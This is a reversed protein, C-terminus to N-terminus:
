IPFKAAALRRLAKQARKAEQALRASFWGVAFWYRSDMQAAQRWYAHATMHDCLSGMEAQAKALVLLYRDWKKSLHNRHLLCASADLAYRLRKIRKRLDHRQLDNLSNFRSAERVLTEQWRGLRREFRHVTDADGASASAMLPVPDLGLSYRLLHLLALNVSPRRMLNTPDPPEDAAEVQPWDAFPAGAAALAAGYQQQMVMLDRSRGLEEFTEQLAGTVSDGWPPVWGRSLRMLSRLRRLGIRFQHIHEPLHCGSSIESANRLVPGLSTRMVAQVFAWATQFDQQNLSGRPPGLAASVASGMKPDQIAQGQDARMRAMSLRHGREAKSRVDLWLGDRDVWQRASELVLNASGNIREIELERVPWTLGGSSILGVDLALEVSGGRMRHLRHTRLIDTRYRENLLPLEESEALTGRWARMFASGAESGEHLSIDLEPEAGGKRVVNHELRSLIAASGLKLTQVWHQGEKRLRLAIGAAALRGDDTDFYVARMRTRIASSTGVRAAVAKLRHEPVQLKIEFETAEM